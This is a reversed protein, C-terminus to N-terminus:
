GLEILALNGELLLDLLDLILDLLDGDVVGEIVIKLVGLQLGGGGITAGLDLIRGEGEDVGLDHGHRGIAGEIM